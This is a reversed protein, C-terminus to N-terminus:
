RRKEDAVVNRGASSPSTVVKANGEHIAFIHGDMLLSDWRWPNHRAYFFNKHTVLVGEHKRKFSQILMETMGHARLRRLGPNRGACHEVRQDVVHGITRLRMLNVIGIFILRLVVRSGSTDITSQPAVNRHIATAM